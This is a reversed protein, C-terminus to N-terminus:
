TTSLAKQLRPCNEYFHWFDVLYSKLRNFSNNSLDVDCSGSVSIAEFVNYIPSLEATGFGTKLDYAPGRSFVLKYALRKKALDDSLWLKEPNKILKMTSALATGFTKPYTNDSKVQKKLQKIEKEIDGIRQEYTGIVSENKANVIRDLFTKKEEELKEIEKKSGEGKKFLKVMRKEWVDKIIKEALNVIQEKPHNETLLDLFDSHINEIPISKGYYPSEKKNFRYYPHKGNRGTTWSATLPHRTVSDVIFGRLPFDKTMGQKQTAPYLPKNELKREIKDLIDESIIGKHKGERRAVEWDPYEIFGAYLSARKLLRSATDAYVKKDKYFGNEDM